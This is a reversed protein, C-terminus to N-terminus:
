VANQAALGVLFCGMSAPAVKCTEGSLEAILRCQCDIVAFHENKDILRKVLEYPLAQSQVDFAENIEILKEEAEIPLVPIFLRFDSELSNQPMVEKIIDRYLKAAMIENEKTDRRRQFYKEFIGPIIPELCYKTLSKSITGVEVSRALIRKIENKPIGTKEELQKLTISKDASEFHSLIKIEEENWFVKMLKIIKRHKPANLPGLVLKQRVNEYYDVETM